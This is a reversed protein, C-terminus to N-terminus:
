PSIGSGSAIPARTCKFDSFSTSNKSSGSFMGCTWNLAADDSTPIEFSPQSVIDKVSKELWDSGNGGAKEIAQKFSSELVVEAAKAVNGNKGIAEAVITLKDLEANLDVPM